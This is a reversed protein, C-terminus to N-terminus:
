AGLGNWKGLLLASGVVGFKEEPGGGAASGNENLVVCVTKKLVDGFIVELGAGLTCGLWKRKIPTLRFWCCGLEGRLGNRYRLGGMSM